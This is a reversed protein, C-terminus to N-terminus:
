KKQQIQIGFFQETYQTFPNACKAPYDQMGDIFKLFDQYSVWMGPQKITATNIVIGNIRIVPSTVLITDAKITSDKAPKKQAFTAASIILATFILITKKM